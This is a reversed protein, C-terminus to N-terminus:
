EITFLRRYAGIVEQPKLDTRSTEYGKIGALTLHKNALTHNVKGTRRLQYRYDAYNTGPKRTPPVTM